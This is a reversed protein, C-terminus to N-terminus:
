SLGVDALLYALVADILIVLTIATVVANTTERSLSETNPKVRLGYFSSVLAIIIGFLMGKGVGIWLNIVPVANPFLSLFANYSIGLQTKSIVMGGLLAILDAWLVLLPLAIALAFVKPIVLRRLPSVGFTQLADIEQTVRMVGLQATFASGSRGAIIVAAMMPGLERLISLGLLNVIFVNAGYAALTLASQYSIVVGISLGVLGIIGLAQPGSKYLTASSERWPIRSPHRLLDLLTLVIEGLFTVAELIHRGLRIGLMGLNELPTRWGTQRAPLPSTKPLAELREFLIRQEDTFALDAPLREGWVRWLLLAGASDMAEAECLDWRSIKGLGRLTAQMHSFEAGIAMLTWPGRLIIGQGGQAKGSDIQWAPKRTAAPNNENPM